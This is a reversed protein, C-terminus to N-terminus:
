RCIGSLRNWIWVFNRSSILGRNPRIRPRSNMM